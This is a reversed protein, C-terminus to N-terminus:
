VLCIERWECGQSELEDVAGGHMFERVYAEGLLVRDEGDGDGKDDVKRRVLFPTRGGDAFVCVEDGPQCDVSGLGVHGGDTLFVRRWAMTRKILLNFPQADRVLADRAPIDIHGIDHELLGIRQCSEEVRRRSPVTGSADLEALQNQHRLEDIVESRSRGERLGFVVRSLAMVLLMAGFSRRMQNDTVNVDNHLDNLDSSMAKWIRDVPETPDQTAPGPCALALAATQEFSNQDALDDASDGIHTIKAITLSHVHLRHGQIKFGRKRGGSANFAIDTQVSGRHLDLFRQSGAASFDIVWSPLDAVIVVSLPTVRSLITLKGTENLMYAM